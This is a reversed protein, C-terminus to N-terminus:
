FEGEGSFFLDFGLSDNVITYDGVGVGSWTSELGNFAGVGWAELEEDVGGTNRYVTFNVGDGFQFGLKRIYTDSVDLDTGQDLCDRDEDEVQLTVTWIADCDPCLAEDTVSTNSGFASFEETCDFHGDQEAEQTWDLNLYEVGDYSSLDINPAGDDDDDDDDPLPVNEGWILLTGACGTLGLSVM